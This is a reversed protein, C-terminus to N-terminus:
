VKAWCQHAKAHEVEVLTEKSTLLHLEDWIKIWMDADGAKPNICKREGRWLGDIIGKNDVYM